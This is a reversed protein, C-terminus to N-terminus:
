AFQKDLQKDPNDDVMAVTTKTELLSLNQVELTM